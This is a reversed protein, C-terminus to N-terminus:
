GKHITPTVTVHLIRHIRAKGCADEGSGKEQRQITEAGDDDEILCCIIGQLIRAKDAPYMQPCGDHVPDERGEVTHAPIIRM